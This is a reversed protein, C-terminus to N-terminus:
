ELEERLATLVDEMHMGRSGKILIWDGPETWEIARVAAAVRADSMFIRDRDFGADLAGRVIERGLKGVGVLGDIGGRAAHEGVQRHLRAAEPGLELMDGLIAVARRDQRTALITDLAAITSAPNANYLDALVRRGGVEVLESRNRAPRARALGAAIEQPSLGVALAAAAAAAANRANHRGVLALRFRVTGGPLALTVDSGEAGQPVAEVLCVDARPTEGFTLRRSCGAAEAALREDDDPFIATGGGEPLARLLEGKARAIEEISGLTELHAPAVLTVLGVEPEALQALHAIEGRASMGMEVVAFGHGPALRLLTLPVGLDNNLNGETKLAGEGLAAAILEKTTTKGASGTVAVVRPAVKRRVFRGYEGLARRPDDVAVVTLGPPVQRGREVVVGGAGAQAAAGLFEHGDRAARLAFFLDGPALTRSDISPAAFERAQVQSPEGGTAQLLDELLLTM